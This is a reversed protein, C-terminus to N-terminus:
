NRDVALFAFLREVVTEPAEEPLFHGCDIPGGSVEGDCWQRWVSLSDGNDTSGFGAQEGWLFLLPCQIRRGAAQDARDIEDDITAGARYDECTAHIVEPKRFCRRYEALAEGDFQFGDAAWSTLLWDLVYDPDHGILTEPRPAPQALFQWHFADLARDKDTLRWMDGTPIVDLSCLSLIRDVHDLAMRYAVRAGRDHGVVGFREFELASMVEALDGAMARKSYALHGADTEPAQSDGYGRLDPAVVTFRGALVPAVHHWIVHSQPYGHILLLPPGEGGVRLHIEAGSTEIRRTEFGDFM